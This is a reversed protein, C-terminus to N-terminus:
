WGNSERLKKGDGLIADNLVPDAKIKEMIKNRIDVEDTTIGAKIRSQEMTETVINLPNSAKKAKLKTAIEEKTKTEGLWKIYEEDKEYKRFEALIPEKEAMVRMKKEKELMENLSSVKDEFEKKVATVADTISKEFKATTATNATALKATLDDNTTKMQNLSGQLETLKAEYEKENMTTVGQVNCEECVPIDTISYEFPRGDISKGDGTTYQQFGISIKTPSGSKQKLTIYEAAKKQYDTYQMLEAEIEIGHKDETLKSGIITGLMEGKAPSAPHVHRYVLPQNVSYKMLNPLISPDVHSDTVGLAKIRIREGPELTQVFAEINM